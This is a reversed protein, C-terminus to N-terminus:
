GAKRTLGRTKFVQLLETPLELRLWDWRKGYRLAFQQTGYSARIQEIVVDPVEGYKQVAALDSDEMWFLVKFASNSWLGSGGSTAETGFLVSTKNTALYLLGNWKRITTALLNMYHSAIPNLLLRQGEDAGVATWREGRARELQVERWVSDLALSMKVAGTLDDAENNVSQSVHFVTFRNSEDLRDSLNSEPRAFLNRMSGEFYQWLKERVAGAARSKDKGLMKYWLHIDARDGAADWTDPRDMDVKVKEWTTMLARDVANAEEPTWGGLLLSATRRLSANALALRQLDYEPVLIPRQIHLPDSYRGSTFTHDIWLGGAEDCLARYEGDVDLQFVRYGETLFSFTLNKMKVSKGEGTAGLILFNKNKEEDRDLDLYTASRPSRGAVRHGAYIGTGDSLSGSTFPNLAAAAKDDVLRGPWDLYFERNQGLAHVQQLAPLQEWSLYELSVGGKRIHDKVLRIAKDLAQKSRATVTVFGWLDMIDATDYTTRERLYEMSRYARLEEPRSTEGSKAESAEISKELRRFKSKAKWDWVIRAPVFRLTLRITFDGQESKIAPHQLSPIFEPSVVEPWSRILLTATFVQNAVVAYGKGRRVTGVILGVREAVGTKQVLRRSGSKKSAPTANNSRRMIWRSVGLSDFYRIFVTWGTRPIKNM